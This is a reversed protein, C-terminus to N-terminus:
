RDLRFCRIVFAVGILSLLTARISSTYMARPFAHNAADAPWPERPAATRAGQASDVAQDRVAEPQSPAIHRHYNAILTPSSPGRGRRGQTEGM